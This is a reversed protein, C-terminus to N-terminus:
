KVIVLIAISLFVPLLYQHPHPFTTVRMGEQYSYLITYDSQFVIQSNRLLKVSKDSFWCNWGYTDIWSFSFM